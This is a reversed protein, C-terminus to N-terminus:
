LMLALVLGSVYLRTSLSTPASATSQRRMRSREREDADGMKKGRMMMRERRMQGREIGVGDGEMRREASELRSRVSTERSGAEGGVGGEEIRAYVVWFLCFGLILGFPLAFTWVAKTVFISKGGNDGLQCDLAVAQDGVSSIASMGAFISQLPGPWKLPFSSAM